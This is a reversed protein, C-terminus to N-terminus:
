GPFFRIFNQVCSRLFSLAPIFNCQVKSIILNFNASIKCWLINWFAASFFCHFM